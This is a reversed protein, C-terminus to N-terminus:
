HNIPSLLQVLLPLCHGCHGPSNNQFATFTWSLLAIAGSPIPCPYFGTTSDSSM